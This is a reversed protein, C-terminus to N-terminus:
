VGGTKAENGSRTALAKYVSPDTNIHDAVFRVSGDGFAFNCGALHDSRFAAWGTTERWNPDTFPVWNKTNMPVYASAYSYTPYGYPWSTNGGLVHGNKDLYNLMQFGAEGVLFTSSLGDTVEGSRM